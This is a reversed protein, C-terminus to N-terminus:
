RFRMLRQRFRDDDAEAESLTKIILTDTLNDNKCDFNQDADSDVMLTSKIVEKVIPESNKLKAPHEM